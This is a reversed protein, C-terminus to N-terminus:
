DLAPQPLNEALVQRALERHRDARETQGLRAAVQSVYRHAIAFNPLIALCLEFAQLSREYWGMRSLVAGLQFHALPYDHALAIAQL